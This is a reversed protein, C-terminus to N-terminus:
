MSLIRKHDDYKDFPINGAVKQRRYAERLHERRNRLLSSLVFRVVPEGVSLVGVTLTWHPGM